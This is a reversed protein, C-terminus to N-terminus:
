LYFHIAATIFDYGVTKLVTDEDKKQYSIGFEFSFGLSEIEQFSFESGFTFDFQYGKKADGNIKESVLAGLVSFYFTLNPEAFINHYSKLGLIRGGSNKDGSYGLLGGFSFLSSTPLKVSLASLESQVQNTTGVGLRQLRASLAFSSTSSAFFLLILFCRM